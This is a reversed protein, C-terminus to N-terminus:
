PRWLLLKDEARNSIKVNQGGFIKHLNDLFTIKLLWESGASSIQDTKIIKSKYIFYFYSKINFYFLSFASFLCVIVVYFPISVSAPPEHNKPRQLWTSKQLVPKMFEESARAWFYELTQQSRMLFVTRSGFIHCYKKKKQSHTSHELAHSPAGSSFQVSSTIGGWPIILCLHELPWNTGYRTSTCLRPQHQLVHFDQNYGSPSHLLFLERSM